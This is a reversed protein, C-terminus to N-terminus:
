SPDNIKFLGKLSSDMMDSIAKKGEGYKFYSELSIQIAESIVRHTMRKIEEAFPFNNIVVEMQKEIEAKIEETHCNFAHMVNYKMDRLELKIIPMGPPEDNLYLYRKEDVNYSM